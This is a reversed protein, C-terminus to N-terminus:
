TWESLPPLGVKVKACQRAHKCSGGICDIMTFCHVVLAMSAADDLCTDLTLMCTGSCRREVALCANTAM